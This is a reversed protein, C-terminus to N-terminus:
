SSMGVSDKILINGSMVPLFMSDFISLEIFFKSIDIKGNKAVIALENIKYETSNSVTLSM